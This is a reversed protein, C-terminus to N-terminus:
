SGGEGGAKQCDLMRRFTEIIKRAAGEELLSSVGPRSEYGGRALAEETPIYGFYGNALAVPLIMDYGGIRMIELGIEVFPEGPVAAFAIEGMAFAQLPLRYVGPGTELFLLLSEAFLRELHPDGRNLDESTLNAPATGTRAGERREVLARAKEILSAEVRRPRLELLALSADLRDVRAPKMASRLGAVVVAYAEGLRRAEEYSSQGRADEFNFHNINGQPAIFPFVPVDRGWLSVIEREMFGPWDASVFNEGITDTHNSANVFLAADAGTGDRIAVVRVQPDVPGEPRVRSPHRKPPNTVVSGDELFWRRNFSLGVAQARGVAVEVPLDPLLSAAAGILKEKLSSLYVTERPLGFLGVVDPGTHIHSTHIMISPGPYGTRSSIKNRIEEVDESLLALTDVQVFVLVSGDREFVAIRAFLPDMVREASRFNFYGALSVPVDPTIDVKAFGARLRGM